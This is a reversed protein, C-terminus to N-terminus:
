RALFLQPSLFTWLWLSSRWCSFGLFRKENEKKGGSHILDISHSRVLLVLKESKKKQAFESSIGHVDIRHGFSALRFFSDFCTSSIWFTSLPLQWLWTELLFSASVARATFRRCVVSSELGRAFRAEFCQMQWMRRVFNFSWSAFNAPFNHTKQHSRPLIRDTFASYSFLQLCSSTPRPPLSLKATLNSPRNLPKFTNPQELEVFLQSSKRCDIEKFHRGEALWFGKVAVCLLWCVVIGGVVWWDEVFWCGDSGGWGCRLSDAFSTIEIKMAYFKRPVLLFLSSVRISVPNILSRLRKSM